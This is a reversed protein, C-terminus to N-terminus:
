GRSREPRREDLRRELEMRAIRERELEDALGRALGVLDAAAANIEAEWKNVAESM